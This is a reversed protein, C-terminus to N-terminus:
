PLELSLSVTQSRRAAISLAFPPTNPLAEFNKDLAVPDVAPLASPPRNDRVLSDAIRSGTAPDFAARLNVNIESIVVAGAAESFTTVPVGVVPLLAEGRWDTLGRALVNGNNFVRLLAGGLADGSHTETLSVRVVAWNAGTPAAASPYLSVTEPRFLSDAAGAFAPIPIRPLPFNYVIPLYTGEPDTVNLKLSLSGPVPTLPPALFQNEHDSLQDWHRLVYLASGNRTFRAGPADIRLSHQITSGTIADVFRLAGLVRWEVRELERLLKAM